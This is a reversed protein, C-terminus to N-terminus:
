LWRTSRYRCHFRRARAKARGADPPCPDGRIKGRDNGSARARTPATGARQLTVVVIGDFGESRGSEFLLPIDLVVLRAGAKRADALFAAQLDRVMPHVIKELRRMAKEDNLVMAGLRGRDVKGDAMAAPFATGVRAAQPGSYIAHVAADADHVPVAFERFFNAVTSKGMGISGTLALVIMGGAGALVSAHVPELPKQVM